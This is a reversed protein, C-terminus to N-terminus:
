VGSQRNLLWWRGCGACLKSEVRHRGCGLLSEVPQPQAPRSAKALLQVGVGLLTPSALGVLLCLPSPLSKRWTWLAGGGRSGELEGLPSERGPCGAGSRAKPGPELDQSTILLALAKDESM